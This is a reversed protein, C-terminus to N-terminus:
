RNLTKACKQTVNVLTQVRKGQNSAVAVSPLVIGQFIAPGIMIM